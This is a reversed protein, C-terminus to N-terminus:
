HQIVIRQSLREGAMQLELLYLGDPLGHLNLKHRGDVAAPLAEYWALRGVQDYVWLDVAQGAAEPWDLQL